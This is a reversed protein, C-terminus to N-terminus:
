LNIFIFANQFRCIKREGVTRPLVMEGWLWQWCRSGSPQPCPCPGLEARPIRTKWGMKKAAAAATKFSRRNELECHQEGAM